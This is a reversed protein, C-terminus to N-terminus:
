QRGNAPKINSVMEFYDKKMGEVRKDDGKFYVPLSLEAVRSSIRENYFEGLATPSLNSSFFTQKKEQVREDVVQYIQDIAWDTKTTAGLDDIFLWKARTVNEKIRLLEESGREFQKQGELYTSAHIWYPNNKWLINEMRDAVLQFFIENFILKLAHTKGVGPNGYLYFGRAIDFKAHRIIEFNKDASTSQWNTEIFNPRAGYAKAMAEYTKVFAPDDIRM